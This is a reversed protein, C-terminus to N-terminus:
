NEEKAEEAQTEEVEPATEETAEAVEPEKVEEIPAAETKPEEAPKEEVKPPEEAKPTEVPKGDNLQEAYLNLGISLNRVHEIMGGALMTLLGEMSPISAYEEITEVNVTDGKIIGARINLNKNKKAFEALEKISELLTKSFLFANPGELFEDLNLNLEDLAHKVLSNKYIKVEGENARLKIRLDSLDSVTLGQYTFLIVTESTKIKDVITKVQEKKLNLNKESAM